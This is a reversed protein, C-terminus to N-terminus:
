PGQRTADVIGHLRPVGVASVFPTVLQVRWLIAVAIHDRGDAPPTPGSALTRCVYLYGSEGASPYASPPPASLGFCQDPTPGLSLKAGTGSAGLENKAIQLIGSDSNFLPNSASAADYYAAQRAAERASGNVADNLGFVRGFDTTGLALTVLLPVLLALEVLSQGSSRRRARGPM